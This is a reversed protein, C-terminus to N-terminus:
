SVTLADADTDDTIGETLPPPVKFPKRCFSFFNQTAVDDTLGATSRRDLRLGVARDQQECLAFASVCFEM